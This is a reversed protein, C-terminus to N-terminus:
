NEQSKQKRIVFAYRVYLVAGNILASGVATDILGMFDGPVSFFRLGMGLFMMGLILFYYAPPYIKSFPVPSPLSVIRQVVRKVTKHLVLRTKMFGLFLGATILLLAGQEKGQVFSTFFDLLVSSSSFQSTLVIWNLGKTLLFFGIAFWILGSFLICGFHSLKMCVMSTIFSSIM